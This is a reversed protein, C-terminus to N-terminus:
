SQNQISLYRNEANFYHQEYYCRRLKNYVQRKVKDINTAVNHKNLELLFSGINNSLKSM